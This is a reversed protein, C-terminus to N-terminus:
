DKRLNEKLNCLPSLIPEFSTANRLYIYITLHTMKRDETNRSCEEILELLHKIGTYRQVAPRGKMPAFRLGENTSEPANSAVLMYHKRYGILPRSLAAITSVLGIYSDAYTLSTQMGTAKAVLSKISIHSTFTGGVWRASGSCLATLGKHPIVPKSLPRSTRAM